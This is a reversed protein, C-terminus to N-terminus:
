KISQAARLYTKVEKPSYLIVINKERVTELERFARRLGNNPYGLGM